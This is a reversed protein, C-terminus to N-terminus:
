AAPSPAAGAPANSAGPTPGAKLLKEAEASDILGNQVLEAVHASWDTPARVTMLREATEPTMAGEAVYAALERRTLEKSRNRLVSGVVDILHYALLGGVIFSGIVILKRVSGDDSAALTTQLALTTWLM